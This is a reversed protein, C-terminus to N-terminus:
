TSDRRRLHNELTSLDSGLKGTETNVSQRAECFVKDVTDKWAEISSELKESVGDVASVSCAGSAVVSEQDSSVATNGARNKTRMSSALRQATECSDKSKEEGNKAM